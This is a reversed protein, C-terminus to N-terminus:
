VVCFPWFRSIRTSTASTVSLATTSGGLTWLVCTAPMTTSSPFGTQTGAGAGPSATWTNRESQTRDLRPQPPGPLDTDPGYPFEPKTRYPVAVSDLADRIALVGPARGRYVLVEEGSLFAQRAGLMNTGSLGAPVRYQAVTPDRTQGTMAYVVYETPDHRM